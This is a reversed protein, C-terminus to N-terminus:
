NLHRRSARSPKDLKALAARAKAVGALQDGRTKANTLATARAAREEVLADLVPRLIAALKPSQALTAIVNPNIACNVGANILSKIATNGDTPADSEDESPFLTAAIVKDAPKAAFPKGKEQTLSRMRSARDSLNMAKVAIVQRVVPEADWAVLGAECFAGYRSRYQRLTAEGPMDVPQWHAKAYVDFPADFEGKAFPKGTARLARGHAFALSMLKREGQQASPNAAERLLAAHVQKLNLGKVDKLAATATAMDMKDNVKTAM